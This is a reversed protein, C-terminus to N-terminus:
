KNKMSSLTTVYLLADSGFINYFLKNEGSNRMVTRCGCLLVSFRYWVSHRNHRSKCVWLNLLFTLQKITCFTEPNKRAAVAFVESILM